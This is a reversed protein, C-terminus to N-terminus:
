CDGTFGPRNVSENDAHCELIQFPLTDIIRELVPIMFQETIREVSFVCEFQTVEDVANIHYVGKIGDYAGKFRGVQGEQTLWFHNLLLDDAREM